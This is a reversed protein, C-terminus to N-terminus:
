QLTRPPPHKKHTRYRLIVYSRPLPLGHRAFNQNALQAGYGILFTWKQDDVKRLLQGRKACTSGTIKRPRLIVYSGPFPRGDRAFNKDSRPGDGGAGGHRPESLASSFSM